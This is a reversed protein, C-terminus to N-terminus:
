IAENCKGEEDRPLPVRLIGAVRQELARLKAFVDTRADLVHVRLCDASLETSLTGPLLSVTNAMLVRPLGPPLRLPYDVLGPVIPVAPHFARWAVDAGGRLSQWLFFPVFRVVGKLSWSFAPMLAVSVLSALLVAPVGVLWSAVVGDSLVWWLLAFFASRISVSYPSVVVRDRNFFREDRNPEMAKFEREFM